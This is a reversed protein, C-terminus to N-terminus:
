GAKTLTLIRATQTTQAKVGIVKEFEALAAASDGTKLHVLGQLYVSEIKTDTSPASMLSKYYTLAKTNDNLALSLDGLLKAADFFHWSDRYKGAFALTKKAAEDKKGKGALALKAECMVMYFAADAKILDRPLANFNVNKLEALAQAYQGDLAFERGRTLPAPDGEHLIKLIEGAKFEQTSGAKKLQVGQASTKVVTGSVNDGAKDYVRDLQATATRTGAIWTCALILLILTRSIFNMFKATTFFRQRSIM